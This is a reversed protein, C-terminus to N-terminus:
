ELGGGAPLTYIDGLIAFVITKGDPSLDPQLGTAEDVTFSITRTPTLPLVQGARALPTPPLGSPAPDLQAPSDSVPVPPRTETLPLTQATAAAALLFAFLGAVSRTLRRGTMM